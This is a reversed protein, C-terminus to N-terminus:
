HVNEKEKKRKKKQLIVFSMKMIIHEIIIFQSAMKLKFQKIQYKFSRYIILYLQNTNPSSVNTRLKSITM